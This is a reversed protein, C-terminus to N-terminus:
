HTGKSALKTMLSLKKISAKMEELARETTATLGSQNLAFLAKKTEDKLIQRLEELGDLMLHQNSAELGQSQSLNTESSGLNPASLDEVVKLRLFTENLRSNTEDIMDKFQSMQKSYNILKTM